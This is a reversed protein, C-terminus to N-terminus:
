NRNDLIAPERRCVQKQDDDAARCFADLYTWFRHPADNSFLPGSGAKNGQGHAGPGKPSGKPLKPGSVTGPEQVTTEATAAADGSAASKGSKDKSGQFGFSITTM